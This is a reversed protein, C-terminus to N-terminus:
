PYDYNSVVVHPDSGPLFKPEDLDLRDRLYCVVGAHGPYLNYSKVNFATDLAGAIFFDRKLFWGFLRLDPTKLEWIGGGLHVLPKFQPGYTITEGSCFIELLADMQQIPSEEVKWHSIWTPLDNDVRTKFTPLAYIWRWERENEELAPDLRFLKEARELEIITAM